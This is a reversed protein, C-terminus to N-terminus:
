PITGDNKQYIRVYDVILQQPLASDDIPGGWDGGLAFNLLLYHPKRFPNDRNAGAQDIPFSHYKKKDFFFDIRDPTWEVAYIHFDDYPKPTTITAGDSQHQGGLGYHVTGHIHNPEKGVVEMIDIEGCAPWDVRSIDSGLTWIAPWVGRGHPIKARVEIRGYKWNARNKTTLSAATYHVPRPTPKKPHFNEKRCEIVLRGNEVRANELRGRTYYQSEHNRVFGEEYDWQAADPPGVKNFEDAWVLKWESAVAIRGGCAAITLTVALWWRISKMMGYPAHCAHMM